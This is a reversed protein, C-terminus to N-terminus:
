FDRCHDGSELTEREVIARGRVNGDDKMNTNNGFEDLFLMYEPQKVRHTVNIGLGEEASMFIEDERNMWVLKDLAELIRSEEMRDYVLDYM